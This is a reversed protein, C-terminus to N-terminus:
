FHGSVSAMIRREVPPGAAEFLQSRGLQEGVLAVTVFDTVRYAVRAHLTIYDEIRVPFVAGSAASQFDTFHSQWRAQLDVDFRNWNYGAGLDIVNAPSGHEYDLLQSQGTLPGISLHDDISILAYSASWRIGSESTGKIGIEGGAARSSGVNQAYSVLGGAGPALPGIVASALLDNTKQHYAAARL